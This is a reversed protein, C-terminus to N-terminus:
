IGKNIHKTVWRSITGAKSIRKYQIWKSVGGYGWTIAQSLEGWYARHERLNMYFERRSERAATITHFLVNRGASHDRKM